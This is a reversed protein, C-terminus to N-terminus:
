LTKSKLCYRLLTLKLIITHVIATSTTNNNNNNDTRARITNYTAIGSSKLNM